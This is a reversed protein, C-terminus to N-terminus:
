DESRARVQEAMWAHRDSRSMSDLDPTQSAAQGVPSIHQTRKSAAWQKKQAAVLAEFESHAARIDPMGDSTPPLAVARSVIWDRVADEQPLGLSDMEREAHQEMLAVQQQQQAQTQQQSFGEKLAHLERRLDDLPDQTDDPEEDIELGLTEAAQRRTDPDESHLLAQYAERERRLQAAEQTVRTYEPQLDSYRKAWDVEQQQQAAAQEADANEPTEVNPAQGGDEPAEYLFPTTRRTIFV